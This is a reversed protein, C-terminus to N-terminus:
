LDNRLPAAMAMKSVPAKYVLLSLFYQGLGGAAICVLGTVVALAFSFVTTNQGFPNWLGIAWPGVFVVILFFLLLFLITSLFYKYTVGVYLMLLVIAVGLIVLGNCVESLRAPYRLVLIGRILATILYLITLCGWTMVTPVATQLKKKAPSAQVMNAASLSYIVQGPLLGICMFMFDSPIRGNYAGGPSAADTAFFVVSVLVFIAGQILSLRIGYGYGLIKIGWKLNSIM